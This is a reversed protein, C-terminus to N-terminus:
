LLVAADAARLDFYRQPAARLRSHHAKKRELWVGLDYLVAFAGGVKAQWLALAKCAALLIKAQSSQKPALSCAEPAERASRLPKTGRSKGESPRPM